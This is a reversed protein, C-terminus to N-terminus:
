LNVGSTSAGVGFARFFEKRKKSPLVQEEEPLMTVQPKDEISPLASQSLTAIQANIRASDAQLQTQRAMQDAQMKAAAAAQDSQERILSAQQEAAKKASKGTFM